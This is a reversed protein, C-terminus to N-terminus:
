GVLGDRRARGLDSGPFLSDRAPDQLTLRNDPTMFFREKTVPRGPLKAKATLSVDLGKADAVYEITLTLSGKHKGGHEQINQALRAMIDTHLRTAEAGDDGHNLVAILRDVTRVEYAHDTM